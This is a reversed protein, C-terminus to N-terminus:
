ELDLSGVDDHAESKPRMFGVMSGPVDLKSDTVKATTEQKSRSRLFLGRSTVAGFHLPVFSWPSQGQTLSSMGEVLPTSEGLTSESVGFAIDFSTYPVGVKTLERPKASDPPTVFYQIYSGPAVVAEPANGDHQGAFSHIFTELDDQESPPYKTEPDLSLLGQKKGWGGGGSLIKYVRAGRGQLFSGLGRWKQACEWEAKATTSAIKSTEYMHQLQEVTVAQSSGPPVVLAWVGVPGPPFEHGERKRRDFLEHVAVELEGSAPAEKGNIEVQRVINGLGTLIKRPPTMPVYPALVNGMGKRTASMCNVDQARKEVLRVLDPVAGRDPRVWCSALLTSQLGNQFITNALPFTCTERGPIEPSNSKLHFTIAAELKSDQSSEPQGEDWLKQMITRKEGHCFSFGHPIKGFPRLPHLGDVAAALVHLQRQEQEQGSKADYEPAFPEVLASMFKEDQLWSAYQRSALIVLANRASAPGPGIRYKPYCRKVTSVLDDQP